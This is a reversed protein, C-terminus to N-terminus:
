NGPILHQLHIPPPFPQLDLDSQGCAYKLMHRWVYYYKRPDLLVEAWGQETKGPLSLYHARIAADAAKYRAIQDAETM